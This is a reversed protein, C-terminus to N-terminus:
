ETPELLGKLQLFEDIPFGKALLEVAEKADETARMAAFEKVRAQFVRQYEAQYSSTLNNRMQETLKPLAIQALWENIIAGQTSKLYDGAISNGSRNNCHDIQWANNYEPKFGMLKYLVEDRGKDLKDFIIKRLDPEKNQTHWENLIKEINQILQAKTTDAM